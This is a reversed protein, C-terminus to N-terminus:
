RVVRVRRAWRGKWRLRSCNSKAKWGEMSSRRTLSSALKAKTASAVLMRSKPGGPTPLVWRAM